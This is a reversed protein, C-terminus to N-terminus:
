VRDNSVQGFLMKLKPLPSMKLYSLLLCYAYWVRTYFRLIMRLVFCIRQQWNCINFFWWAILLSSCHSSCTMGIGYGSVVYPWNKKSDIQIFCMRTLWLLSLLLPSCSSIFPLFEWFGSYVHVCSRQLGSTAPLQNFIRWASQRGEDNFCWQRDQCRSRSQSLSSSSTKYSKQYSTPWATRTFLQACCILQDLRVDWSACAM